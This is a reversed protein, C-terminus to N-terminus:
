ADSPSWPQPRNAPEIAEFAALGALTVDLWTTRAQHVYDSSAWGRTILRHVTGNAVSRSRGVAPAIRWYWYNPKKSWCTANAVLRSLLLYENATPEGMEPMM